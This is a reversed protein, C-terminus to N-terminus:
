ASVLSRPRRKVPAPAAEPRPLHRKITLPHCDIEEAFTSLKVLEIPTDPDAPIPPLGMLLRKFNEVEHRPFFYVGRITVPKPFPVDFGLHLPKRMLTGQQQWPERGIGNKATEFGVFGM